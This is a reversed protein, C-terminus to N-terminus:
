SITFFIWRFDNSTASTPTLFDLIRCGLSENELRWSILLHKISTKKLEKVERLKLLISDVTLSTENIQEISHDTFCETLDIKLNAFFEDVSESSEIKISSTFRLSHEEMNLEQTAKETELIKLEM